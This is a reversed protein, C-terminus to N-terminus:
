MCSNSRPAAVFERSLAKQLRGSKERIRGDMQRGSAVMESLAEAAKTRMM